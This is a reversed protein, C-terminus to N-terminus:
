LIYNNMPTSKTLHGTTLINTKTVHIKKWLATNMMIGASIYFIIDYLIVFNPSCLKLLSYIDETVEKRYFPSLRM